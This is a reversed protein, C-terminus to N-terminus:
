NRFTAVTFCLCKRQFDPGDKRKLEHEELCRRLKLHNWKDSRGKKKKVALAFPFQLLARRWEMEKIQANTLRHFQRPANGVELEAGDGRLFFCAARGWGPCLGLPKRASEERHITYGCLSTGMPWIFCRALIRGQASLLVQDILM